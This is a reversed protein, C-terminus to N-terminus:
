LQTGAFRGKANRSMVLDRYGPSFGPTAEVAALETSGPCLRGHDCTADWGIVASRLATTKADSKLVIPMGARTSGGFVPAAARAPPPAALVLAAAGGVLLSTTSPM